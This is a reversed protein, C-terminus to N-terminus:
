GCQVLLQEAPCLDPSRHCEGAGFWRSPTREYFTHSSRRRGIEESDSNPNSNANPNPDARSNTNTHSHCQRDPNSHTHEDSQFGNPIVAGFIGIESPLPNGDNGNPIAHTLVDDYEEKKDILALEISLSGNFVAVVQKSHFANNNDADNWNIASKPVYGGHYLESMRSMTRIVAEKIKPDDAHLVGDPTVMGEGGYAVNYVSFTRIPDVGNTSVELAWSYTRRMGQDRLKQQMPLFFDIFADWKNPIDSV